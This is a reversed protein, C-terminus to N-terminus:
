ESSTILENNTTTIRKTKMNYRSEIKSLDM